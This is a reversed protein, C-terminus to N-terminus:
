ESSLSRRKNVEQQKATRPESLVPRHTHCSTPPRSNKTVKETARRWKEEVVPWISQSTDQHVSTWIYTPPRLTCETALQANQALCLVWVCLWECLCGLGFSPSSSLSPDWQSSSAVRTFNKTRSAQQMLASRCCSCVWGEKGKGKTWLRTQNQGAKESCVSVQSM